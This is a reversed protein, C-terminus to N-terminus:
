EVTGGSKVSFFIQNHEEQENWSRGDILPLPFGIEVKNGSGLTLM